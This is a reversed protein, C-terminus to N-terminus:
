FFKNDRPLRWEMKDILHYGSRYAFGIFVEGKDGKEFTEYKKRFEPTLMTGEVNVIANHPNMDKSQNDFPKNDVWMTLRHWKDDLTLLKVYESRHYAPVYEGGDHELVLEGDIWVKMANTCQAAMIASAIYHPARFEAAFLQQKQSFEFYHAPANVINIDGKLEDKQIKDTVAELPINIFDITQILGASVSYTFDETTINIDLPNKCRRRRLDKSATVSFEIVSENQGNIELEFDQPEVKWGHPVSLHINASMKRDMPNSFRAKFKETKGPAIAVNQPYNVKVTVPAISVVSELPSYENCLSLNKDTKAWKPLLNKNEAGTIQSDSKYFELVEPSIEIIQNSFETITEVEHLASICPSLVLEDGLPKTWREEFCDPDIIGFISGLTACTCDADHGLSAVNCLGKSVDGGCTLLAAVIFSLNICVNTWNQDFYTKLILERIELTDKGDKVYQLVSSIAKYLKNNSNIVSLGIEILKWYDSEIFAASEVAAIFMSADVGDGSHDVCSDERALKAALIPDGPALCAWIETRIAAGMGAGFKSDYYGSLPPYLGNEINQTCTAYEDVVCVIHRKFANGILNRNIPLGYRKVTELWVVQNDLDDNAIMETPVPDYYEVKKVGIYGELPMGLTGGVAKGVFCGKVKKSYLDFSIKSM